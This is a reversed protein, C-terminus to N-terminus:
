QTILNSVEAKVHEVQIVLHGIWGVLVDDLMTRRFRDPNYHRFIAALLIEFQRDILQIRRNEPDYNFFGMRLLDDLSGPRLDNLYSEIVSVSIWFLPREDERHRGPDYDREACIITEYIAGGLRCLYSHPAM